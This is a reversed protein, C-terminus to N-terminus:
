SARGFQDADGTVISDGDDTLPQAPHRVLRQKL